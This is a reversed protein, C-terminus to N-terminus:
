KNPHNIFLKALSLSQLYEMSAPGQNFILDLISLNPLFGVKEEFVQFYRPFSNKDVANKSPKFDGRFDKLGEVYETSFKLDLSRDLAETIFLHTATNLEHLYAFKKEFIPAILDEYYEFYPSSRYASTISKWHVHQWPEDYRLKIEQIPTKQEHTRKIPVSLSLLGNAGYVDCRTRYTQKRYHEHIDIIPNEQIMLAYYAINGFYCLPMVINEM